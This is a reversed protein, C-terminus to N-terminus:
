SSRNQISSTSQIPLLPGAIMVVVGAMIMVDAINFVPWHYGALHLDLFDTVAGDDLRDIVNSTAGGIIAALGLRQARSDSRWRWLVLGAVIALSFLALAYPLFPHDSSLLGFSVGRNYVLVLNFFPTVAIPNAAFSVEALHKAGQDLILIGGAVSIPSVSRMSLRSRLMRLRNGIVIFDSLQHALVGIPL